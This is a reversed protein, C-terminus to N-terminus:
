EHTNGSRKHVQEYVSYGVLAFALAVDLCHWTGKDLVFKFFPQFVVAISVSLIALPKNGRKVFSYAFCSMIVLTAFRLLTYYGYPMKLLSVLLAIALCIGAISLSSFNKMVMYLKCGAEPNGSPMM